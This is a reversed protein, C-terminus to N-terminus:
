APCPAPGIWAAAIAAGAVLAGFWAVPLWFALLPREAIHAFLVGVFVLVWGLTGAVAALGIYLDGARSGTGTPGICAWDIEFLEPIAFVVAVVSLPALAVLALLALASATIRRGGRRELGHLAHSVLREEAAM